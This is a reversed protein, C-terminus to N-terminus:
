FLIDIGTAPCLGQVDLLPLIQGQTVICFLHQKVHEDRVCIILIWTRTDGLPLATAEWAVM